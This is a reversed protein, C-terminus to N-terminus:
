KESLRDKTRAYASSKLGSFDSAAPSSVSHLIPTPLSVLIPSHVLDRGAVLREVHDIEAM